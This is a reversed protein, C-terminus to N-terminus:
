LFLSGGFEVSMFDGGEEGLDCTAVCSPRLGGVGSIEAGLFAALIGHAFLWGCRVSGVGVVLSIGLCLAGLSVASWAFIDLALM